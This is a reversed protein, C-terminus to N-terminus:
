LENPPINSIEGRERAMLERIKAYKMFTAFASIAAILLGRYGDRFGGKILYDKIFKYIGASIMKAVGPRKGRDFDEEALISTFYNVQRLHGKLSYYTYHFIDGNLHVTSVGANPILQDHPNKGGWRAAGNKVLRIKTDPYWGSHHIWKGLYSSKRNMSATDAKPEDLHNQISALLEPSLAEDADLSLIWSCSAQDLAFNKQQIHGEFPHVIVKGGYTKAIEQTRDSSGSDVVIIENAIPLVSELCRAINHEENKTIVVVSIDGM